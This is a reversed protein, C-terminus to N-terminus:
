TLEEGAAQLDRLQEAAADAAAEIHDHIARDLATVEDPTLPEPRELASHVAEAILVPVADAPVRFERPMLGVTLFYGLFVSSLVTVQEALSRDTRIWGRDRLKRLLEVTTRPAAREEQAAEQAAAALRGLIETDRTLVAVLLPRQQYARVIEVLLLRLDAPQESARLRDRVEDLLMARERQLVALFLLERNPWHAYVSGKAVEAVRAVDGVTTRDYGWRLLLKATADLIRTAREEPDDPKGRPSM